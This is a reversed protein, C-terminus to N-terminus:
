GFYGVGHAMLAAAVIILGVGAMQARVLTRITRWRRESVAPVQAQALPKRWSLFERTAPISMLGVVLFLALKALFPASHFYYHSGKEFYLVRAFGALLLIGAAVGYIRDAFVLTRASWLSLAEETLVRELVLAAVLAFAAAFHLLSFLSAM